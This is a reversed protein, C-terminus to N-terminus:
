YWDDKGREKNCYKKKKIAITMEENKTEITREEKKIAIKKKGKKIAIKIDDNKIEVTRKDKKIVIKREKKWNRKIFPTASFTLHICDNHSHCAARYM